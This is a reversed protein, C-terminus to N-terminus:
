SGPTFTFTGAPTSARNGGSLAAALSAISQGTQKSQAQNASIVGQLLQQSINAENIGTTLLGEGINATTSIANQDVQQLAQQEQTSGTLGLTAYYGRVQAKAAATSNNVITQLGAPLTGSQLYSALANGQSQLNGAEGRLQSLQSANANGQLMNLLLGGGSLAAGVPNKGIQAGISPLWTSPSTLSFTSAAPAAAAGTDGAVTNALTGLNATTGGGLNAPVNLAPITGAAGGGSVLDTGPATVGASTLDVPAGAVGAPPTIAAASTAGPAQAVGTGAPAANYGSIGGTVGGLAAGILPSEGTAAAGAAGGAAGLGAGIATEGGVSTVGLANSVPGAAGTAGGTIAGFEAGKLPDGGTIASTAAGLGAGLLASGGIGAATAAVGGATAGLDVALAAGASFGM